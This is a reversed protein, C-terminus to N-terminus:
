YRRRFGAFVWIEGFSIDQWGKPWTPCIRQTASNLFLGFVCQPIFSILHVDKQSEVSWHILSASWTVWFKLLLTDVAATNKSISLAKSVIHCEPRSYLTDSNSNDVLYMLSIAENWLSLFDQYFAFKRRQSFYRYTHRLTRDKRGINSLRYM